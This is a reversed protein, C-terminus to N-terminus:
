FSWWSGGSAQPSDLQPDGATNEQIEVSKTKPPWASFTQLFQPIDWKSKESHSKWINWWKGLAYKMSRSILRVYKPLQHRHTYSMQHLRISNWPLAPDQHLYASLQTGNKNTQTTKSPKIDYYFNNFYFIYWIYKATHSYFLRYKNKFCPLPWVAIFSFSKSVNSCNLNRRM